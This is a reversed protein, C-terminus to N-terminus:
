SGSEVENQETETEDHSEDHADDRHEDEMEQEHENEHENSASNDDGNESSAAAHENAQEPLEIENTVDSAHDDNVDMVTMTVDDMEVAHAVPVGVLIFWVSMITILKKM